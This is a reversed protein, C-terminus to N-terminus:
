LADILERQYDRFTEAYSQNRDPSHLAGILEHIQRTM